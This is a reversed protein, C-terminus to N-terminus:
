WFVHFPFLILSVRRPIKSNRLSITAAMVEDTGTIQSVEGEMLDAPNPTVQKQPSQNILISTLSNEEAFVEVHFYQSVTHGQVQNKDTRCNAKASIAFFLLCTVTLLKYLRM